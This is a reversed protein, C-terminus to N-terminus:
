ILEAHLNTSLYKIYVKVKNAPYGIYNYITYHKKEQINQNESLYYNM